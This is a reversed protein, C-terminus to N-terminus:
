PWYEDGYSVLLETNPPIDKIAKIFARKAHTDIIFECNNNFTSNYADNLMAMYCRPYDFADIGCTGDLDLYYRSPSHSIHYLQGHYEDIITTAPILAKCFVGNCALPILSTAVYLDHNSTHYYEPKPQQTATHKKKSKAM